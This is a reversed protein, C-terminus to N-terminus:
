VFKLDSIDNLNVTYSNLGAKIKVTDGRMSVVQFRMPAGKIRAECIPKRFNAANQLMTALEQRVTQHKDNLSSEMQKKSEREVANKLISQANYVKSPQEASGPEAYEEVMYDKQTPEKKRAKTQPNINKELPVMYEQRAAKSFDTNTNIPVTNANFATEKAPAATSAAASETIKGGDYVEGTLKRVAEIEGAIEKMAAYVGFEHKLRELKAEEAAKKQSEREEAESAAQDSISQSEASPTRRQKNSRYEQQMLPQKQNGIKPQVIYLLPQPVQVDNKEPM